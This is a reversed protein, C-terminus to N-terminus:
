FLTAPLAPPGSSGPFGFQFSGVEPMPGPWLYRSLFHTFRKVTWGGVPHRSPQQSRMVPPLILCFESLKLQELKQTHPDAKFGLGGLVILMACSAYSAGAERGQAELHLPPDIFASQLVEETSGKM